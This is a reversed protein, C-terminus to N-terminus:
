QDIKIYSPKRKKFICYYKYGIQKLLSLANQFEYGIDDPRHADSGITIIEGGLSKYLNLIDVLPHFDSLGYRVGSTNLELGKGMSILIKLVDYLEEKYKNYSFAKEGSNLYRRVGDIHGLSDFDDFNYLCKKLEDFYNLIGIHDSDNGLFDGKYLEKKNVVHISGLVFDISHNSSIIKNQESLHPQLGLEVGKYIRLKDHFKEFIENLSNTYDNFDFMECNDPYDIDIHDTFCIGKLGKSIATNCMNEMTASPYSDNSYISHVHLDYM